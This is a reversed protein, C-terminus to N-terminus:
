ARKGKHRRTARDAALLGIGATVTLLSIALQTGTRNGTSALDPNTVTLAPAISIVPTPPADLATVPKACNPTTATYTWSVVSWSRFRYGQLVQATVRHQGADVWTAEGSVM